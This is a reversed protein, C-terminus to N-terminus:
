LSVMKMWVLVGQMVLTPDDDKFMTSWLKIVDAEVTGKYFNEYNASLIKLLMKVDQITMM